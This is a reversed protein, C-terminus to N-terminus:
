KDIQIVDIPKPESPYAALIIQVDDLSVHKLELRELVDNDSMMSRLLVIKFVEKRVELTLNRDKCYSNYAIQTDEWIRINSEPDLDRKFDDIWKELPTEDVDAFTEHVAKIRALLDDPLADHQIPGRQIQNTNIWEVSSESTTSSDGCGTLCALLSIIAIICIGTQHTRTSAM